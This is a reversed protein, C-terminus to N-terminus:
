RSAPASSSIVSRRFLSARLATSSWGRTRAPREGGRSTEVRKNPRENRRGNKGAGVAPLAINWRSPSRPTARAAASRPAIYQRLVMPVVLGRATADASGRSWGLSNWSYTQRSRPNTLSRRACALSLPKWARASVTSRVHYPLRSRSRRLPNVTGGAYVQACVTSATLRGAHVHSKRALSSYAYAANSTAASARAFRRRAAEERGGRWCEASSSRWRSSDSDSGGRGVSRRACTLKMRSANSGLKSQSSASHSHSSHPSRPGTANFPTIRGSSAARATSRPKSATQTLLWPPLCSSVAGAM